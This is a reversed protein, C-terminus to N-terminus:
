SQEEASDDASRLELKKEELIRIRAKLEEIEAEIGAADPGRSLKHFVPTMVTVAGILIALVGIIRFIIDGNGDPEFWLLFLLIGVLSGDLILAATRSWSFRHDLRALSLLSIHAFAVAAILATLETKVFITGEASRWITVLTMVGAIVTSIVGAIPLLAARETEYYAGCALGLISMVTITLTTLLIRVETDGYDGLLIVVIGLVASVTVSAILSYLFIRKM